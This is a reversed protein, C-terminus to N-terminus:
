FDVLSNEDFLKVQAQLQREKNVSFALLLNQRRFAQIFDDMFYRQKGTIWILNTPGLAELVAKLSSGFYNATEFQTKIGRKQEIWNDFDKLLDSRSSIQYGKTKIKISDLSALKSQIGVTKLKFGDLQTSFDEVTTGTIEFNRIASLITDFEKLATNQLNRTGKIGIAIDIPTEKKTISSTKEGAHTIQLHLQKGAKKWADTEVLEQYFGAIASKNIYSKIDTNYNMILKSLYTTYLSTITSHSMTKMGSGQKLVTKIITEFDTISALRERIKNLISQQVKLIQARKDQEELKANNELEQLAFQGELIFPESAIKEIIDGFKDEILKNTKAVRGFLNNVTQKQNNILQNSFQSETLNAKLLFNKKLASYYNIAQDYSYTNISRRLGTVKNKEKREM